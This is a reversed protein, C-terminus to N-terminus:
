PGGAAPDDTDVGQDGSADIGVAVPHDETNVQGGALVAGTPQREQAVQGGAAQTPDLEDGSVGM